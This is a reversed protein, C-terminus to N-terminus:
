ADKEERWRCRKFVITKMPKIVSLSRNSIYANWCVAIIQAIGYSTTLSNSLGSNKGRVSIVESLKMHCAHRPDTNSINDLSLVGRWFERAKSPYGRLTIMAAAIVAKRASIQKMSGVSDKAIGFYILAEPVWKISDQIKDKYNRSGARPRNTFAPKKYLIFEIAAALRTSELQTLGTEEPLGHARVNDSLNRTRGIDITAYLDALQKDTELTYTQVVFNLPKKSLIVASLRHQGDVLVYRMTEEVYAFIIPTSTLFDGKEIQDAYYKVASKVIPRTREFTGTLYEKAKQVGIRETEVDCNINSLTKKAM